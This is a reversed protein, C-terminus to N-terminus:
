WLSVSPPLDLGLSVKSSGMRLQNFGVGVGEGPHGSAWPLQQRGQEDNQEQHRKIMSQPGSSPNLEIQNQNCNPNPPQFPSPLISKVKGPPWSWVPCKLLAPTTSSKIPPLTLIGIGLGM